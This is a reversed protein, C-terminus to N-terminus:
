GADNIMNLINQMVTNRRPSVARSFTPWATTM